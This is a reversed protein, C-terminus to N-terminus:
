VTDCSFHIINQWNHFMKQNDLYIKNLLTTQSKYLKSGPGSCTQDTTQLIRALRVLLNNLINELKELKLINV